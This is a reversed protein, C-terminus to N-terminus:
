LKTLHSWLLMYDLASKAGDSLWVDSFPEGAGWSSCPKERQRTFVPAVDPGIHAGLVTGRGREPYNRRWGGSTEEGVHRVWDWRLDWLSGKSFDLMGEGHPERRKMVTGVLVGPMKPEPSEWNQRGVRPSLQAGGAGASCGPVEALRSARPGCAEGRKNRNEWPNSCLLWGQGIDQFDRNWIHKRTKHNKRLPPSLPGQYKM